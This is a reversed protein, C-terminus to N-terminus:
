DVIVASGKKCFTNKVTSKSTGVIPVKSTTEVIYTNPHPRSIVTAKIVGPVYKHSNEYDRFVTEIVDVPARVFTYVHVRPLPAHRVEESKVIDKGDKVLQIEEPTLDIVEAFVSTVAALSALLLFIKM